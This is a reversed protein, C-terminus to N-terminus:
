KKKKKSGVAGKACPLEWALRQIMAAAAPRLWLWLWALDSSRRGAHPLALDKVWQAPGPIADVDERVSQPNKVRHAM